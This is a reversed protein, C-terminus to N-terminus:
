EKNDKFIPEYSYEPILVEEKPTDIYGPRVDLLTNIDRMSLAKAKWDEEAQMVENLRRITYLEDEQKRQRISREMPTELNTESMWIDEKPGLEKRVGQPYLCYKYQGSPERIYDRIVWLQNPSFFNLYNEIIYGQDLYKFRM